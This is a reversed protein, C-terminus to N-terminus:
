TYNIVEHPIEENILVFYITKVVTEEDINELWDM